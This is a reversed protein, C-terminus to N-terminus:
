CERQFIILTFFLNKKAEEHIKLKPQGVGEVRKDWIRRDRGTGAIAVNTEHWKQEVIEKLKSKRSDSSRVKGYPNIMCGKNKNLDAGSKGDEVRKM